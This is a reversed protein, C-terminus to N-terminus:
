QIAGPAVQGTPGGYLSYGPCAQMATENVSSATPCGLANQIPLLLEQVVLGAVPINDVIESNAYAFGDCLPSFLPNTTSGQADSVNIAVYSNVTGQNCGPQGIYEQGENFMGIDASLGKFGYLDTNARRYWNDPIRETGPTWTLSGSSGSVGMFSKLVDQNLLGAPNEASKNGFFRYIFVFAAQSVVAGSFPAYTFYPNKAISENFRNGRFAKLVDLNYNATSADPQM